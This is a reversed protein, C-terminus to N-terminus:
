PTTVTFTEPGASGHMNCNGEAKITTEGTVTYTVSRTFTEAEPKDFSGFEWRQLEEGNVDVVVWNTYHIFNNGDHSVHLNITIEEGVAATPPAEIRVSTKNALAPGASVLLGLILLGIIRYATKLTMM